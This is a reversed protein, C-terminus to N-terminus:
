MCVCARVCDRQSTEREKSTSTSTVKSGLEWESPESTFTRRLFIFDLLERLCPPM